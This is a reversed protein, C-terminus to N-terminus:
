ARRTVECSGSFGCDTSRSMGSVSTIETAGGAGTNTSVVPRRLRSSRRRAYANPARTMIYPPRILTLRAPPGTRDLATSGNGPSSGCLSLSPSSLAGALGLGVGAGVGLWAGVANNTASASGRRVLAGRVVAGRISDVRTVVLGTGFVLGVLFGVVGAGTTVVLLGVSDIVVGTLVGTEDDGGTVPGEVGAAGAGGTGLVPVLEPV